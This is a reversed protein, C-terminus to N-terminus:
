DHIVHAAKKSIPTLWCDSAINQKHLVLCMAESIDAAEKETAAFAFLAPGSGSFSMGLAGADLAAMKIEYFGPVFQARQPEIILDNLSEKLLLYDNEYLAAIFSALKASQRVYDKLAVTQRLVKRAERTSVQLHPHIIVAYLQPIPLQIIKLPKQSHILTLGGYLCPIINDYHAAGSAAQEGSLAFFALEELTLPTTLFQNCAVLAAVASAASGGMGSCLPIGKDIHISFGLDLSMSRCLKEVAISATNKHLERPLVDKSNISEVVIKKDDRRTLRVRDGIADLAFGLIDFGVAVNASTAPAFATVSKIAPNIRNM